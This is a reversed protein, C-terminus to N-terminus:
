KAKQGKDRLVLYRDLMSQIKDKYDPNNLLNFKSLEKPNENLDFLAIPEMKNMNRDSQIILKLDKERYLYEKGTGAQWALETRKGSDKGLLNPLLNWSDKAQDQNLTSQTVAAITALIDSGSALVDNSSGAQIKNKWVAIFPVRQGGEQSSNKYGSFEGASNHGVASGQKDYLGGNDSTFIILTNDYQGTEKLTNVIIEVEKDLVRIMDIHRSPTTGAIKDGTMEAPPMHPLHVAPSWYTLLFPSKKNSQNQIFARAKDAILMNINRTNWHSDGMGAGKDSVVKPELASDKDVYIIKSNKNLPYWSSNEYALYTPGQVGSPLTFDYDFGLEKPNGAIWRTLDVPLFQRSMDNGRFVEQTNKIYFDGGLHWKGVFGTNYGAKKAIRGLTADNETFPSPRFKQWVGWPAYSRFPSNGSMVSYRTPSCLATPAYADTLSMGDRALQDITPTAVVSTKGTYKKHHSAVDGPGLDDAMIIVINPQASDSYSKPTNNAFVESTLLASGFLIVLSNITLKM